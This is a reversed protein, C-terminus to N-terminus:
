NSVLILSLTNINDNRGRSISLSHVQWLNMRCFILVQSTNCYHERSASVLFREAGGTLYFRYSVEADKKKRHLPKNKKM